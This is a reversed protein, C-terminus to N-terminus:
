MLHDLLTAQDHDLRAAAPEGRVGALEASVLVLGLGGRRVRVRGSVVDPVTSGGCRALTTSTIGTQITSGTVTSAM